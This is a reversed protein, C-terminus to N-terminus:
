IVVSKIQVYQWFVALWLDMGASLLIHRQEKFRFLIKLAYCCAWGTSLWALNLPLQVTANVCCCVACGCAKCYASRHESMREEAQPFDLARKQLERSNKETSESMSENNVGARNMEKNNNEAENKLSM